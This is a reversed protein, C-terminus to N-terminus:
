IISPWMWISNIGSLHMLAGMLLCKIDPLKKTHNWCSNININLNKDNGRWKECSADRCLFKVYGSDSWVSTYHTHCAATLGHLRLSDFCSLLQVTVVRLTYSPIHFPFRISSMNEKVTKLSILPIWLLSWIYSMVHFLPSTGFQSLLIVLRYVTM